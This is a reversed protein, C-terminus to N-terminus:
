HKINRKAHYEIEHRLTINGLRKDYTTLLITVYEPWRETFTCGYARRNNCALWVEPFSYLYLIETEPDAEEQGLPTGSFQRAYEDGGGGPLYSPSEPIHAICKGKNVPFGGDDFYCYEEVFISARGFYQIYTELERQQKDTIAGNGKLTIAFATSCFMLSILFIAVPVVGALEVRAYWELPSGFRCYRGTCRTDQQITDARAGWYQEM